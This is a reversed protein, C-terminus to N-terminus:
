TSFMAGRRSRSSSKPSCCKKIEEGVSKLNQSKIKEVEVSTEFKNIEVIPVMIVEKVKQEEENSKMRKPDLQIPIPILQNGSRSDSLSEPVIRHTRPSPCIVYDADFAGNPNPDFQPKIPGLGKKIGVQHHHHDYHHFDILFGDNSLIEWDDLDMENSSKEM